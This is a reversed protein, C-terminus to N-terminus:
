TIPSALWTRSLSADVTVDPRPRKFESELIARAAEVESMALPEFHRRFDRQEGRIVFFDVGTGYLAFIGVGEAVIFNFFPEEGSGGHAVYDDRIERWCTAADDLAQGATYRECGAERLLTDLRRQLEPLTM